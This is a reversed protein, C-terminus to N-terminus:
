SISTWKEIESKLKFIEIFDLEKLIREAIEDVYRYM